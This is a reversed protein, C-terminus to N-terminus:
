GINSQTFATNVSGVCCITAQFSFSVSAGLQNHYVLPQGSFCAAYTPFLYYTGNSQISSSVMYFTVGTTVPFPVYALTGRNNVVTSFGISTPTINSSTSNTMDAVIQYINGVAAGTPQVATGGDYTVTGTISVFVGDGASVTASAATLCTPYWKFLGSPLVNIRSNLMRDEFSIDYDLILYGPSDTSTGNITSRTYVLLEGDAQHEVDETNLVDTKFWGHNGEILQASHNTWQPGLVAMDTSLAYALFNSSTCDVKPGGHNSHYFLLIDGSTSTPSSTIYHAVARNWKYKEYSQFFGRLATASLGIPSMGIGGQFTFDTYNTATGGITAIYDRGQIRVGNQSFNTQPKVSRITNGLSVPAAEVETVGGFARISKSPAQSQSKSKKKEMIAVLRKTDARDEAALKTLANSIAKSVLESRQNASMKSSPNSAKTSKNQAM